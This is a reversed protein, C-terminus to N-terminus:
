EVAWSKWECGNKYASYMFPPSTGEWTGTKVHCRVTVKAGWYKRSYWCDSHLQMREGEYHRWDNYIGNVLWTVTAKEGYAQYDCYFVIDRETLSDLRLYVSLKDRVNLDFGIANKGQNFNWHGSNHNSLTKIKMESNCYEFQNSLCTGNTAVVKRLQSSLYKQYFGWDGYGGWPIRTKMTVPQKSCVSSYGPGVETKRCHDYTNMPQIYKHWDKTGKLTYDKTLAEPDGKAKCWERDPAYETCLSGDIRLYVWRSFKKESGFSSCRAYVAAPVDVRMQTLLGYSTREKGYEDEGWKLFREYDSRTRFSYKWQYDDIDAGEPLGPRTMQVRTECGSCTTDVCRVILNHKSMKVPVLIPNQHRVYILWEQSFTKQGVKIIVKYMGDDTVKLYNVVLHGGCKTIRFGFPPAKRCDDIGNLGSGILYFDRLGNPRFYWNYRYKKNHEEAYIRDGDANRDYEWNPDTLSRRPVLWLKGGESKLWESSGLTVCTWFCLCWFALM